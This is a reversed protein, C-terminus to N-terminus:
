GEYPVDEEQDIVGLFGILMDRWDEYTRVHSGDDVVEGARARLEDSFQEEAARLFEDMECDAVLGTDRLHKNALSAAVVMLHTM